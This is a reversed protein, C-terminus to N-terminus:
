KLLIYIYTHTFKFLNLWVLEPYTESIAFQSLAFAWIQLFVLYTILVLEFRIKECYIYIGIKFFWVLGM